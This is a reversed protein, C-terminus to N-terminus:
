YGKESPKPEKVSGIFDLVFNLQTEHGLRFFDLWDIASPKYCNNNAYTKM